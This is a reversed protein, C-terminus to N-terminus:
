WLSTNDFTFTILLLNLIEFEPLQLLIVLGFYNFSLPSVRKRTWVNDGEALTVYVVYFVIFVFKSLEM